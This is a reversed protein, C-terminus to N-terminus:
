AGVAPSGRPAHPLVSLTPTFQSKDDYKIPPPTEIAKTSMKSISADMALALCALALCRFDQRAVAM